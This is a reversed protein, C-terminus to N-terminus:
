LEPVDQDLAIDETAALNTQLRRHSAMEMVDPGFRKM